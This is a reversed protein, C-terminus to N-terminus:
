RKKSAKKVPALLLAELAAMHPAMAELGALLPLLKEASSRLPAALGNLPMGALLSLGEQIAEPQLEPLRLGTARVSEALDETLQAQATLLPEFARLVPELVPRRAAVDELTKAVSQRSLAM